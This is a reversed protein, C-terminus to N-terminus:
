VKVLLILAMSPVCSFCKDLIGTKRFLYGVYFFAVSTLATDVNWILPIGIFRQYSLGIITLAIISAGQYATNQIKIIFFMIIEIIFLCTLFWLASQRRQLVYDASLKLINIQEKTIIRGIVEYTIILSALFLYPVILRYIRKKVFSKFNTKVKFVYGSVVFFLPMHFSYIWSSLNFIYMHGIIVLLIGYGKAMDIWQIRKDM